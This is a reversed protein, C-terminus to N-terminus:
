VAAAKTRAISGHNRPGTGMLKWRDHEPSQQPVLWFFGDSGPRFNGERYTTTGSEFIAQDLGSVRYKGCFPCEIEAMDDMTTPMLVADVAGCHPCLYRTPKLTPNNM